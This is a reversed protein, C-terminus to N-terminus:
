LQIRSEFQSYDGGDESLIAYRSPILRPNQILLGAGSHAWGGIRGDHMGTLLTWRSPACFVGGYYNNFKMGEAALRDIHPTKILEQGYCGLLGIGLDDANILIINPKVGGAQAACVGGALCLTVVILACLTHLEQKM